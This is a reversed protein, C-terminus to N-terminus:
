SPAPVLATSAETEPSFCGSVLEEFSIIQICDLQNQILYSKYDPVQNSAVAIFNVLKVNEIKKTNYLNGHYSKIKFCNENLCGIIVPNNLISDLSTAQLINRYRYWISEEKIDQCYEIVTKPSTKTHLNIDHLFPDPKYEPHFSEDANAPKVPAAVKLLPYTHMDQTVVLYPSAAHEYKLKREFIRYQSEEAVKVGQPCTIKCNFTLDGQHKILHLVQICLQNIDLKEDDCASDLCLLYKIKFNNEYRIVDLCFADHILQRLYDFDHPIDKINCYIKFDIPRDKYIASICFLEALMVANDKDTLLSQMYNVAPNNIDIISYEKTKATRATDHFAAAIQTLKIIEAFTIKLCASIINLTKEIEVPRYKTRIRHLVLTYASVRCAHQVGKVPREIWGDKLTTKETKEDTPKLYFSLAGNNPDNLISALEDNLNMAQAKNGDLNERIIDVIYPIKYFRM